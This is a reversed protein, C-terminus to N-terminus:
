GKLKKNSKEQAKELIEKAKKRAEIVEPNTKHFLSDVQSQLAETILEIGDKKFKIDKGLRRAQMQYEGKLGQAIRDIAEDPINIEIKM